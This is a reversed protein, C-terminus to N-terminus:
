IEVFEVKNSLARLILCNIVHASLFNYILDNIKDFYIATIKPKLIGNIVYHTSKYKM